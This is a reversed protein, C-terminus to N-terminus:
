ALLKLRRRLLQGKITDLNDPLLIVVWTRKQTQLHLIILLYTCFNQTLKAAKLQAQSTELEWGGSERWIIKTLGTYALSPQLRWEYFGMAVIGVILSLQWFWALPMLYVSTIVILHLALTLIQLLRSTKMPLVLEAEFIEASSVTLPM